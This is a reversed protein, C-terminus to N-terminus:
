NPWQTNLVKYFFFFFFCLVISLGHHTIWLVYYYRRYLWSNPWYFQTEEQCLLAHSCAKRHEIQFLPTATNQMANSFPFISLSLSNFSSSSYYYGGNISGGSYWFFLVVINREDLRKENGGALVFSLMFLSLVQKLEMKAVLM